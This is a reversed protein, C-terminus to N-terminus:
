FYLGNAAHFRKKAHANFLGRPFAPKQSMLFVETKYDDFSKFNKAILDVDKNGATDNNPADPKPLARVTIRTGDGSLTVDCSEDIDSVHMNVKSRM